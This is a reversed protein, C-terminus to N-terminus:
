RKGAAGTVGGNKALQCVECTGILRRVDATMGPWYWILRLKRNMRVVGTHAQRHTAWIVESRQVEPCVACDTARNSSLVRVMLVGDKRIHMLPMMGALKKLDRGHCSVEEEDLSKKENVAQYILGVDTDAQKQRDV